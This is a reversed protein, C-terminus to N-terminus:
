FPTSIEREVTRQYSWLSRLLRSSTRRLISFSLFRRLPGRVRRNMTVSPIKWFSPVITSKGFSTQIKQIGLKALDSM